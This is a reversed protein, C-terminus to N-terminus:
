KETLAIQVTLLHFKAEALKKELDLVYAGLDIAYQRRATRAEVTPLEHTHNM